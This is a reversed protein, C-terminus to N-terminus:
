DAAELSFQESRIVIGNDRAAPQLGQQTGAHNYFIFYGQGGESGNYEIRQVGKAVEVGPYILASTPHENEPFFVFDVRSVDSGSLEFYVDNGLSYVDGAQFARPEDDVVINMESIQPIWGVQKLVINEQNVWDDALRYNSAVVGEEGKFAVVQAMGNVQPFDFEVKFLGEETKLGPLVHAAKIEGSASPIYILNVDEIDETTQIVFDYGAETGVVTMDLIQLNGLSQCRGKNEVELLTYEAGTELRGLYCVRGDREEIYIDNIEIERIGLTAGFKDRSNDVFFTLEGNDTRLDFIIAHGEHTYRTIRVWDSRNAKFNAVFADLKEINHGLVIDGNEKALHPPYNLPLQELEVDQHVNDSIAFVTGKEILSEAFGGGQFVITDGDITFRYQEADNVYLVLEGEQTFYNGGPRYSTVLGRNFVFQKDELLEVWALGDASVYKGPVLEGDGALGTFNIFAMTTMFSLVVISVLVPAIGMAKLKTSVTRGTKRSSAERIRMRTKADLDAPPSTSTNALNGLEKEIWKEDM